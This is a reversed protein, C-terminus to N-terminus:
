TTFFIGTPDPKPPPEDFTASIILYKILDSKNSLKIEVSIALSRPDSMSNKIPSPDASIEPFPFTSRLNFIM